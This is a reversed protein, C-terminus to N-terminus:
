SPLRGSAGSLARSSGDGQDDLPQRRLQELSGSMVLVLNALKHATDADFAGVGDTVDRSGSQVAALGQVVPRGSVGTMDAPGLREALM